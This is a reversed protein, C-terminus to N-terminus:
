LNEKRLTLWWQFHAPAVTNLLSYGLGTTLLLGCTHYVIWAQRLEMCEWILEWFAGSCQMPNRSEICVYLPGMCLALLELFHTKRQTLLLFTDLSDTAATMLTLSTQLIYHMWVNQHIHNTWCLFNHSIQKWYFRVSQYHASLFCRLIRKNWLMKNSSIPEKTGIRFQAISHNFGM